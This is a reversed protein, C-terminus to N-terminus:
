DDDKMALHRTVEGKQLRLLDSGYTIEFGKEQTIIIIREGSKTILTIPVEVETAEIGGQNDTELRM